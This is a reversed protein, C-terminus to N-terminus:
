FASRNGANSRVQWLVRGTGGPNSRSRIKGARVPFPRAAPRQAAFRDRIVRRLIQAPFCCFLIGGACFVRRYFVDPHEASVALDTVVSVEGAFLGGSASWGTQFPRGWQYYSGGQYGYGKDDSGINRDLMVGNVYTQETLQEKNGWVNFAWICM